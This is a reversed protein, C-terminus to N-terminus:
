PSIRRVGPSALLQSGSFRSALQRLPEAYREFTLGDVTVTPQGTVGDVLPGCEVMRRLLEREHEVKFLDAPPKQERLLWVGAALGYAGWNSIGAVILHDTPVRCAVRGGGPINARIVDWPVKGMGIENGGDGIGITTLGPLGPAVEFLLHMPSTQATIDIGRMTYCRDRCEAPVEHLFDLLVEGAGLQRQVSMETHTPGVRELAILHTPRFTERVFPLWGRVLFTEWPGQPGPLALLPVSKDLGCARLGEALAPRCATDTLLAVRVGLPTLARALFLAGLPGDTEASPPNGTPIYFGTVVALAPKPAEAISCCAAAFDDACSTLLNRTPDTALGRHGVDQQILDRLADLDARNM